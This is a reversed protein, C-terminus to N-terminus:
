ARPLSVIFRSGRGVESEVRIDGGHALVLHKVISLGLGTGGLERSRADDVRYFREFLRPIHEAPIGPGTDAIILEVTDGRAASSVDVRGGEPTYKIANEILNTLIQEVAAREATAREDGLEARLTIKRAQAREGLSAVVQQAVTSLALAEVHPRYGAELRAIDLLDATLRKLRQAHRLMIDIFSKRAEPEESAGLTLTEAAGLIAAVPTRLEHSANAVFDRRLRELRRPESLDVLIV